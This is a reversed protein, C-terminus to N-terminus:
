GADLPDWRSRAYAIRGLFRRRDLGLFRSDSQRMERARELTAADDVEVIHVMDDPAQPDALLYSTLVGPITFLRDVLERHWTLYAERESADVRARIAVMANARAGWREVSRLAELTQVGTSRKIDIVARLAQRPEPAIAAIAEDLAVRSKVLAVLLIATPDSEQVCIRVWDQELAPDLLPLVPGLATMLGEFGGERLRLEALVYESM